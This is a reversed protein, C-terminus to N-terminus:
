IAADIPEADASSAIARHFHHEVRSVHHVVAFRRAAESRTRRRDRYGNHHDLLDRAASALADLDNPPVLRAGSNNGVVEGVGGVHFAAVPTGTSLAEAIVLGFPEEWVPTVLACGSSGVLEALERMRLPGVYRADDDLLPAVSTAFYDSDGVRGAIVIRAGAARAALIALHPAKEPVIRGFWVIDAGGRGFRWMTTDVANHLLDSALGASQWEHQTHRSVSVFRSGASRGAERWGDLMSPLPPTHLTTLMPIGLGPARALPAGHLNHNDIVDVVDRRAAFWDLARDLFEVAVPLHGPPFTSDSALAPDAWVVPPLALEPHPAPVSGEVATLVVRHGRARLMRVRDFLAAELGGAHPEGLAHRFPAIMGITLPRSARADRVPLVATM